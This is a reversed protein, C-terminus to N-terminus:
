PTAIKMQVLFRAIPDKFAIGVLNYAYLEVKSPCAKEILSNLTPLIRKQNKGVTIDPKAELVSVHSIVIAIRSKGPVDVYRITYLGGAFSVTEGKPLASLIEKAGISVCPHDACPPLFETQFMLSCCTGDTECIGKGECKRCVGCNGTAMKGGIFEFKLM